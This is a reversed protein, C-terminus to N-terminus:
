TKNKMMAQEKRTNEEILAKELARRDKGGQYLLILCIVIFLLLFVVWFTVYGELSATIVWFHFLILLILTFAITFFLLILAKFVESTSLPYYNESVSEFHPRTSGM